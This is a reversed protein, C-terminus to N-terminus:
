KQHRLIAMGTPDRNTCWSITASRLSPPTPCGALPQRDRPFGRYCVPVESYHGSHERSVPRIQHRRSRHAFLSTLPARQKMADALTNEALLISAAHQM